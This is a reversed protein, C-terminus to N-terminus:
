SKNTLICRESSGGDAAFYNKCVLMPKTGEVHQYNNIDTLNSNM